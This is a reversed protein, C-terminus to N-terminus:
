RELRALTQSIRQLSILQALRLQLSSDLLDEVTRIHPKQTNEGLALYKVSDALPAGKRAKKLSSILYRACQQAMVTNDGEGELKLVRRNNGSVLVAHDGFISAITNYASYRPTLVCGLLLNGTGM